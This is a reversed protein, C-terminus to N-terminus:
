ATQSEIGPRAHPLRRHRHLRAQKVSLLAQLTQAVNAILELGIRRRHIELQEPPVQLRRQRIRVAATAATRRIVRHQHELDQHDLRLVAQAVVPQREHPKETQIGAVPHRIRLRDPLEPLPEGPGPGDVPQEPPEVIRDTGGPVDAIDPCITSLESTAAGFCRWVRASFCATM